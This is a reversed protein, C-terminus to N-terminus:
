LRCDIQKKSHSNQLSFALSLSTPVFDPAAIRNIDDWFYACSDVIKMKSRLDYILRIADENWLIEIAKAVQKTM